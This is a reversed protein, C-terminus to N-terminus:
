YLGVLRLTWPVFSFAGYTAAVTLLAEGVLPRGALHRLLVLFGCAKAKFLLLATGIGIETMAGAILPNGEGAPSGAVGIYTAVGDFLQLCINLLFLHHVVQVNRLSM